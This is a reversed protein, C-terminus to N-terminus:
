FIEFQRQHIFIESDRAIILGGSVLTNLAKTVAEGSAGVQNSIVNESPRRIKVMGGELWEGEVRAIDLLLNAVRGCVDLFTLTEVKELTNRQRRAMVCLVNLMIDPNERATKIFADRPLAVLLADSKATVTASRPKEDFLSLEGFFDGQSLTDLVVERGDAHPLSVAVTGSLIVFLDRSDDGQRIISAGMNVRIKRCCAHLLHLHGDNLGSFFPITKLYNTDM